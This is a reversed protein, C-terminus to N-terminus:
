AKADRGAKWKEYEAIAKLLRKRTKWARAMKVEVETDFPQGFEMQAVMHLPLADFVEETM